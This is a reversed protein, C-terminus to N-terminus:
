LQTITGDKKDVNKVSHRKNYDNETTWTWWLSSCNILHRTYLRLQAIHMDLNTSQIHKLTNSNLEVYITM